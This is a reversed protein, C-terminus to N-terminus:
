EKEGILDIYKLLDNRSEISQELAKRWKEDKENKLWNEELEIRKKTYYSMGKPFFFSKGSIDFAKQKDESSFYEVKYQTQKFRELFEPVHSYGTLILVTEYGNIENLINKMMKDERMANSSGPNIYEKEWWDIGEVDINISKAILNAFLMEVPGDGLNDIELEEPRSEVLVLDPNLNEIIAEIHLFSYEETSLHENHITGLLYITQINENQLKYFNINRAYEPVLKYLLYNKIDTTTLTIFLIFILLILIIILKKKLVM